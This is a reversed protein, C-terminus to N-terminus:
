LWINLRLLNGEGGGGAGVFLYRSDGHGKLFPTM